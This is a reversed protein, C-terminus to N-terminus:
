VGQHHQIRSNSKGSPGPPRLHHIGVARLVAQGHPTPRTVLHVPGTPIELKVLRIPRLAELATELAMTLGARQLAKQLACGLVLALHAVFLHARVRQPTQHYIPRVALVDKLARFSREVTQLDKYAAVAQLPELSPDNTQLLYTGEVRLEARLKARDVWFRFRGDPDLRWAFYRAGHHEKLIAGARAGIKEPARLRGNAVTQQLKRLADRCRRMSQRRMAQEYALREPSRVVCYRALDNPLRVEAVRSGDPLAQWPGTAAQIIAQATPNRRRQLGVLYRDEGQRMATLTQESVMGRDAVWVVRQLAFRARVDALVAEVTSRDALHGEFVYSAIPWGSAMVVGVLVQRDRPHGDRSHGHRALGAPGRGEFYTSTLDYFVLDVQLGFLDRLQLYLDQEIAAKAELLRDLTHYWLRLQRHAVQVRGRREWQPLLRRGTGDAVFSEELWWALAHESGPHLLRHAVLVFAAEAVDLGALPRCHRAIIAGLGLQEWLRRAVLVPGYTLGWAAQLDDPTLVRERTYPRLAALLKALHPALLDARGVPAVVRQRARGGEWMSEVLYLYRYTRAGQRRTITRLFM